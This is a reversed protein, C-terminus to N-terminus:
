KDITTVRVKQINKPLNIKFIDDKFKKNRQFLIFLFEFRVDDGILILRKVNKNKKDLIMEVKTYPLGTNKKFLIKIKYYGNIEKVSLSDTYKELNLLFFDAIFKPTKLIQVQNWSPLYVLTSESTSYIIQTEPIEINIRLFDPRKVYLKGELTDVPINESYIIEKFEGYISKVNEYSKKVEKWIFSLIVCFLFLLKM